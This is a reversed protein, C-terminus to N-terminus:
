NRSNIAPKKVKDKLGVKEIGAGGVLFGDIFACIKIENSSNEKELM